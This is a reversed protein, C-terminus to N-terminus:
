KKLPRSVVSAYQQRTEPEKLTKEANEEDTAPSAEGEEERDSDKSKDFNSVENSGEVFDRMRECMSVVEQKLSAVEARLDEIPDVTKQSEDTGELAEEVLIWLAVGEGIGNVKAFKKVRKLCAETARITTSKLKPHSDKYGKIRHYISM